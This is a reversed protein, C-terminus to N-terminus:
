RRRANLCSVGSCHIERSGCTTFRPRQSTPHISKGDAVGLYGALMARRGRHMAESPGIAFTAEIPTLTAQRRGPDSYVRNECVPPSECLKTAPRWCHRLQPRFLCTTRAGLSARAWSRRQVFGFIHVVMIPRGAISASRSNKVFSRYRLRDPVGQHSGVPLRNIRRNRLSSRQPAFARTGSPTPGAAQSTPLIM